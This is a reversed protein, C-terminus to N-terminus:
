NTHKTKIVIVGNGARLGYFALSAVDKLVEISAIDHPNIGNLAGGPGSQVAVGDIVYLPESNGNISTAGRIRIVIGGDPAHSILVGPVRAALAKEIPDLGARDLDDSTVTTGVIVPPPSLAPKDIEGPRAVSNSACGAFLGVFLVCSLTVRPTLSAM